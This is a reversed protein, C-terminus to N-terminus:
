KARLYRRVYDPGKKNGGDYDSWYKGTDEETMKITIMMTM